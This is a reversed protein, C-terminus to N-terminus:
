INLMLNDEGFVAYQNILIVEFHKLADKIPKWKSNKPRKRPQKM